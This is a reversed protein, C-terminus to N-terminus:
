KSHLQLMAAAIDGGCVLPLVMLARDIAESILSQEEKRPRHLVFDAVAQHLGLARPHGIGIRLRWYDQTGLAATIDKLGNHGGSSGGQKLKAVGPPLDLEDHVVLIQDSGIKYFKALAGVAQGSRNMFTQPELLWIDENSLNTKAVLGQCRNDRALRVGRDVALNDVLWFGANHRTQEYEPGPNGLGVIMRITM